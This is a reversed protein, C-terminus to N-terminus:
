TWAAITARGMDSSALVSISRATRLKRSSTGASL